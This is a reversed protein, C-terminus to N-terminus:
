FLLRYHCFLLVRTIFLLPSVLYKRYPGNRPIDSVLFRARELNQWLLPAPFPATVRTSRSVLTSFSYPYRRFSCSNNVLFFNGTSVALASMFNPDKQWALPSCRLMKGNLCYAPGYSSIVMYFACKWIETARARHIILVYFLLLRLFSGYM